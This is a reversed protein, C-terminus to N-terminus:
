QRRASVSGVPPWIPKGPSVGPRGMMGGTAPVTLDGQTRTQAYGAKTVAVNTVYDIMVVYTSGATVQITSALLVRMLLYPLPDVRGSVWTGRSVTVSSSMGSLRPKGSYEGV